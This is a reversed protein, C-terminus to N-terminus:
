SNILHYYQNMVVANSAHTIYYTRMKNSLLQIESEPKDLFKKITASLEKESFDPILLDEDLNNLRQTMAGVPTSIVIKGAAMAEIGVLPGGEHQSAIVLVDIKELFEPVNNYPVYGVMKINSYRSSYNLVEKELPGSGAILVKLQNKIFAQILHGLGKEHSMRGLYGFRLPSKFAVDNKLLKLELRSSQEICNINTFGLRKLENLNERSHVVIKDSKSLNSFDSQEKVSGTVRIILRKNQKNCIKSIHHLWKDTLLGSYFVVDQENVIKYLIELYLRDFNYFFKSIRNKVLFVDEINSKNKWKILTAFLKILLIQLALREFSMMIKSGLYKDVISQSSVPITSFVSTHYKKEFQEIFFISNIERGGSESIPGIILIKEKM